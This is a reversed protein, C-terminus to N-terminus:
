RNLASDLEWAPELDPRNRPAPRGDEAAIAERLTPVKWSLRVKDERESVIEALRESLRRMHLPTKTDGRGGNDVMFAYRKSSAVPDIAPDLAYFEIEAHGGTETDVMLIVVQDRNGRAVRAIAWRRLFPKGTDYPAFLAKANPVEPLTLAWDSSQIPGHMNFDDEPIIASADCGPLGLFGGIALAWGGVRGFFGRRGTTNVGEQAELKEM